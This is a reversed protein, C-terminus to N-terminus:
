AKLMVMDVVIVSVTVAGAGVGESFTMLFPNPASIVPRSKALPTVSSPYINISSAIFFTPLGASLMLALVTNVVDAAHIQRLEVSLIPRHSEGQAPECIRRAQRRSERCCLRGHAGNSIYRITRRQSRQHRHSSQQSSCGGHRPSYPIDEILAIVNLTALRIGASEGLAIREKM